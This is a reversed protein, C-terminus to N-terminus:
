PLESIRRERANMRTLITGTSDRITTSWEYTDADIFRDEAVLRIGGGLDASGSFTKTHENWDHTIAVVDGTSGLFYHAHYHGSRSDFGWLGIFSTGNSGTGRDELFRGDLTWAFTNTQTYCHSTVTAGDVSVEGRWSGVYRQLPSSWASSESDMAVM